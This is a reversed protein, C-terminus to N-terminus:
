PNNKHSLESNPGSQIYENNHGIKEQNPDGALSKHELRWM